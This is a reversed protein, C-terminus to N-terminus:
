DGADALRALRRAAAMRRSTRNRSFKKTAPHIPRVQAQITM